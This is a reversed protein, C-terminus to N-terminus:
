QTPASAIGLGKQAQALWSPLSALYRFTPQDDLFLATAEGRRKQCADFEDKAEAFHKAAVYAMGLDFRGLWVDSLKKAALFADIAEIPRGRKLAIEGEIIRAYARSRIAVQGDLEAALKRAQDDRDAQLFIRAAGVKTEESADLTLAAEAAKRAVDPKRGALAADGLAVSKAAANATSRNKRDVEIGAKLTAMAEDFQGSFVALDALGIHALSAGAAGTASMKTYADRAADLKGDALAAMALPLYAKHATPTLGIGISAERAATAFDGAYMAYLAYNTRFTASKPYIDIAKRGEELAKPFNLLNFHTIALNGHGARDAPYRNVLVTYNELAKEYNHAVLLYYAGLSRYRERETMRNLLSLSAKFAEDAEETRGLRGAAIALGSYARGFNPDGELAKRYHEIAEESRSADLLDQAIQYERASELSAATFTEAGVDKLPATDGLARRMQSALAGVATLVEAKSKADATAEKLMKGSVDVARVSIVYGSGKPEIAGTLIVGVGERVGVLRANEADLRGGRKIQQEVLAKAATRNYSTIFPAGELSIGLSQEIVGDFVPDNARNDFDAILVPVPAHAPPPAAPRRSAAWWTSGVLAATLAVTAALLSATVRRQMRVVRGDDSIRNLAALLDASTAFRKDPDPEVCRAVLIEIPEPIQSDRARLRPPAQTIRLALEAAPKLVGSTRVLGLLMDTLILGFAYIDARQDATKGLAQEPAMYELTGIISGALTAALQGMSGAGTPREKTSTLDAAFTTAEQVRATEATGTSRAIGFDMILAHGGADIMINAPKLDRHVVGAEHAARLGEAIQRAIRVADRVALKGQRKITSALNEGEVYAMTIYTVGGIEGLDHIRVVNKHTVQRALLLERKFRREAAQAVTSDAMADPRIVKVAVAVGLKQDWAQYVAGMGGVGLTKIVHYRSAFVRGVSITASEHDSTSSTSPGDAGPATTSSEASTGTAPDEPFKPPRADPPVM